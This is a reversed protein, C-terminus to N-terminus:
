GARGLGRTLVNRGDDYGSKHVGTPNSLIPATAGLRKGGISHLLWVKGLEQFADSGDAAWDDEPKDNYRQADDDWEFRYFSLAKILRPTKQKDFFCHPFILRAAQISDGKHQIRETKVVNDAGLLEGVTDLLPTATEMSRKASDHPLYHKDYLYPKDKVVKCHYVIGRGAEEHYDIIHVAEGIFQVFLVSTPHGVGLDWFTYVPQGEEYPLFRIRGQSRVKELEIAFVAGEVSQEFAEAPFSPHERKMLPGLGMAGDRTLAYWAKKRDTLEINHDAKLGDFYRRLEDSIVIGKPDTEKKTDDCWCSFHFRCQKKNLTIGQKEQATDAMAQQAADYFDGAGGDATSEIFLYSGDHLAPITGSKLEEAKKPYKSCMKGHESVHLGRLTSSRMSTAVRLWSNNALKLENADCKLAPMREFISKPLNEYPYKIKTAFIHQVDKLTHAVIGAEINDNFLCLDLLLVDILTSFGRQRDKLILNWYWMNDYFRRQVPRLKFKVRRSNEDIIWYLNNLRWLTDSLQDRIIVAPKRKTATKM